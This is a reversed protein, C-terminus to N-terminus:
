KVFLKNVTQDVIPNESLATTLPFTAKLEQKINGPLKAYNLKANRIHSSANAVFKKSEPSLSEIRGKIMKTLFESQKTGYPQPPGQPEKDKDGGFLFGQTVSVAVLAVFFAKVVFSVM